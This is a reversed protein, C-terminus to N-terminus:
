FTSVSHFGDHDSQSASTPFGAAVLMDEREKLGLEARTGWSWGQPGVPDLLLGMGEALYVMPRRHPKVGAGEQLGVQAVPHTQTGLNEQLGCQQPPPGSGEQGKLETSYAAHVLEQSLHEDVVNGTNRKGLIFTESIDPRCYQGFGFASHLSKHMKPIWLSKQLNSSM